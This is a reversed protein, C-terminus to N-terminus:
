QRYAVAIRPCTIREYQEFYLRAPITQRDWGQLKRFKWYDKLIAVRQGEIHAEMGELTEVFAVEKGRWARGVYAPRGFMQIYGSPSVVKRKVEYRAFSELRDLAEQPIFRDYERLRTVSPNGGLARHGRVYNRYYVYAPLDRRLPELTWEDYQRYFDKMDDRFARELKGNTQPHYVASHILRIGVNKCFAVLLRGKFSSGNDFLVAHPIVRWQRMAAILARVTTRTDPALFLDCFVYGRSYDDMLTLQYATEDLDTLTVKEMFDGHWLRHPHRREYFRWKPPSSVPHYVDYIERKLRKVSAPSIEVGEGNRLDWAIREPGLHWQRMIVQRTKEVMEWSLRPAPARPVDRKPLRPLGIRKRVRQITRPEPADAGLREAVQYSSWTPYRQCLLVVKQESEANIRNSARKPGRRHDKLAQRMAGTARQRFKYLDSRCIGFQKTIHSVPQGRLLALVANMRRKLRREQLFLTTTM